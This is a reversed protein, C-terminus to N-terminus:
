RKLRKLRKKQNNVNKQMRGKKVKENAKKKVENPM